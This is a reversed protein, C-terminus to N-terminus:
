AEQCGYANCFDWEQNAAGTWNWQVIEAGAKTSAGSVGLIRHSHYNEIPGIPADAGDVEAWWYQDPHGTGLCTWGVVEAGEGTSGGAVGLCQDGNFARNKLQRFVSSITSGWYWEQNAAAECTYQVAEADQKGGTIGLCLHSGVNVICDYTTGTCPSGAAAAAPATVAALGLMICAAGFIAATARLRIRRVLGEKELSASGSVDLKIM